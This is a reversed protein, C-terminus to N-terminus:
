IMIGSDGRGLNKNPGAGVQRAIQDSTTKPAVTSGAGSSPPYNDPSEPVDLPNASGAGPSGIAPARGGKAVPSNDGPVRGDALHSLDPAQNVDGSPLNAGFDLDVTVDPNQDQIGDTLGAGGLVSHISALAQADDYAGGPHAPLSPSQPFLAELLGTNSLKTKTRNRNRVEVLTM